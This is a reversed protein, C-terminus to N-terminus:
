SNAPDFFTTEPLSDTSNWIFSTVSAPSPFTIDIQKKEILVKNSYSVEHGKAWLLLFVILDAHTVAIIEQNAFKKTYKAIFKQTRNFIDIPQEFPKSIGTYLDWNMDELNSLPRGDFPTFSENLYSSTSISIGPFFGAIIQGTQRARLLPSTIVAKIPKNVLYSKLKGARQYGDLNIQFGPMRGYFIGHPNHVTGHRVFNIITTHQEAM